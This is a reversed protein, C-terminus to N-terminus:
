GSIIKTGELDFEALHVMYNQGRDKLLRKVNDYFAQEISRDIICILSPGAGSLAIGAGEIGAIDEIIDTLGPVLSARYPQHLRDEMAYKLIDSKGTLLASVLLSSRAINFVADALPVEEPLVRRAKKTELISDPILLVPKLKESPKYSVAKFGNGIGYCITFGGFVAPGVNDPHGEIQTALSFIEEKSLKSGAIENAAVLGGVIATSSSGLGRGLPVNNEIEIRLGSYRYGVEDFLRKASIFILNKEGTSLGTDQPVKIELGGDTEEVRFRNYLDISLGLVDFGPGINASTAPVIVEVM